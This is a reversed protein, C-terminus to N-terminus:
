SLLDPGAPESGAANGSSVCRPFQAQTSRRTSRHTRSVEVDALKLEARNISNEKKEPLCMQNESFSFLSRTWRTREHSLCRFVGGVM